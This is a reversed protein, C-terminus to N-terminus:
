CSDSENDDPSEVRAPAFVAIAAAIIAFSGAAIFTREFNVDDLLWESFVPGMGLGSFVAVSFYSAGEARRERPSLDAILTAAGVFVAAEGVGTLVRLFMLVSLSDTQSMLMGGTAATM